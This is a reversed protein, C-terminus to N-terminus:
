WKVTIDIYFVNLAQHMTGSQQSTSWTPCGDRHSGCCCGTNECMSMFPFLDAGRDYKRPQLELLLGHQVYVKKFLNRYTIIKLKELILFIGCRIFFTEHKALAENLLLLNGDSFCLRGTLLGTSFSGTMEQSTTGMM